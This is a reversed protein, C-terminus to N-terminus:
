TVFMEITAKTRFQNNHARHEALPNHNGFMNEHDHSWQKKVRLSLRVCRVPCLPSFYKMFWKMYKLLDNEQDDSFQTIKFPKFQTVYPGSAAKFSGIAFHLRIHCYTLIWTWSFLRTWETQLYLLFMLVKLPLCYYSLAIFIYKSVGKINTRENENLIKFHFLM